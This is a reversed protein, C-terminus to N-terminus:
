KSALNVGIIGGFAAALIYGGHFMYQEPSFGANYGLYQVLFTILTFLIGTLGGALWGKEKAKGGSMVGGIFLSLFSVAMIIWSFSAETFSSFMLILSVVFSFSLAIALVTILGFMVAPLMGRYTM